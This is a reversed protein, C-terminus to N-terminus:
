LMSKRVSSLLITGLGGSETSGIAAQLKSSGSVGGGGIGLFVLFGFGSPVSSTGPFIQRTEGFHKRFRSGMESM